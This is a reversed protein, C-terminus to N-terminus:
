KWQLEENEYCILYISGKTAVLDYDELVQEEDLFSELGIEDYCDEELIEVDKIINMQYRGCVIAEQELQEKSLTKLKDLLEKYKM